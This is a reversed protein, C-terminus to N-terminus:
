REAPLGRDRLEPKKVLVFGARDLDDLLKAWMWKDWAGAVTREASVLRQIVDARSDFTTVDLLQHDFAEM